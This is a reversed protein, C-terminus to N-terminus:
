NIEREVIRFWLTRPASCHRCRVDVRRRGPVPRTHELVRYRGDCHPCALAAVRPEIVAASGVVIPRDPTGGPALEALRERALERRLATKFGDEHM